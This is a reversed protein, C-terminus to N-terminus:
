SAILADVLEESKYSIGCDDVNLILFIDKKYWLCLDCKSQTYGEKRLTDFLLDAWLKPADKAGYLSHILKLVHNPKKSKFGRPIKMYAPKPRVAQVFANSFDISCTDHELLVSLILFMRITSFAVVPAFTDTIGTMLDGRLCIRAKRRKIDGAPSRKRRFVWTAPVIAEGNAESLPVEIWVGHAEM